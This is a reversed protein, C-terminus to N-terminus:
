KSNIKMPCPMQELAAEIAKLRALKERTRQQYEACMQANSKKPGGPKRGPKQKIKPLETM